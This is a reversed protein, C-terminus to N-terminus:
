RNEEDKHRDNVLVHDALTEVPTAYELASTLRSNTQKVDVIM